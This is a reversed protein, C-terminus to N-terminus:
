RTEVTKWTAPPGIIPDAIKVNAGGVLDDYIYTYNFYQHDSPASSDITFNQSLTKGIFTGVWLAGDFKVKPDGLVTAISDSANILARININGSFPDVYNGNFNITSGNTIYIELNSSNNAPDHNLEINGGNADLNIAGEVFLIVKRGGRINITDGAQLNLNTGAGLTGPIGSPGSVLKYYYVEDGGRIITRTAGSLPLPNTKLNALTIENVSSAAPIAKVSPGITSLIISNETSDDLDNNVPMTGSHNCDPDTVIINGKVKVDGLVINAADPAGDIWLAPDLGNLDSELSVIGAPNPYGPQIPLEVEISAVSSGVENALNTNNQNVRGEVTLKGTPQVTYKNKAGLTGPNYEYDILRYQGKSADSGINQWARTALAEVASGPTGTAPPCYTNINPINTAGGSAVEANKWSNASTDNCDAGSSWSDCADYMAIAKYKNIEERFRSVGVEAAALAKSTERKSISIIEEDTSQFISIMGVLTMILGLAFVVPIAYGRDRARNIFLIKLLLLKM